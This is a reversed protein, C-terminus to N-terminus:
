HDGLVALMSEFGSILVCICAWPSLRRSRSHLFLLASGLLLFNFATNPAMMNRVQFGVTLKSPFLWQDIGIDTGRFLAVLKAAGVLTVLLACGRALWLHFHARGDSKEDSFLFHSLAALLFAVASMPNMAVLGPIVRKLLDVDFTWGILVLGAILATATAALTGQKRAHLIRGFLTGM